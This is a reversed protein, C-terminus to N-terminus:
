RGDPGSVRIDIPAPQGFNLVQDVIDAPQFFFQMGAFRKPLEHRLKAMLAATPTHKPKLSILIEGDMPGVTASDSLAINIGSYPLGINDLIVDIQDNGVIQRIAAEVKAFDQQTQEIRTGPPTVSMFACRAQTSRRSFTVDWAASVSAIFIGHPCRFVYDNDQAAIVDVSIVQRYTERFREFGHEFKQHIISFPNLNHGPPRSLLDSKNHAAVSSRMLYKFLVPVLTFSLVM